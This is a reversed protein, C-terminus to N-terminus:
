TLRSKFSKFSGQAILYSVIFSVPTFILVFLAIRWSIFLMIGLTFVISVIGSVFQNLFLIMGDGVTECDSILMSQVYGTQSMDLYKM